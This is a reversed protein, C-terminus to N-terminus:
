KSVSSVSARDSGSLTSRGGAHAIVGIDVPRSNTARFRRNRAAQDERGRPHLLGSQAPGRGSRPRSRWRPRRQPPAQTSIDVISLVTDGSLSAIPTTISDGSSTVTIAGGGNLQYTSSSGNKSQLTGSFVDAGISGDAGWFDVVFVDAWAPAAGAMVAVTSAGVILVKRLHISLTKMVRRASPKDNSTVQDRPWFKACNQDIQQGTATIIASISSWLSPLARTRNGGGDGALM